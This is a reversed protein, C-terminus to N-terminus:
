DPVQLKKRLLGNSAVMRYTARNPNPKCWFEGGAREVIFGGAAIDWLNIGREIYADFRASAVYTLALSASGMSRIKRVRKVLRNFYPLTTTVTERTKAFGISLLTEQLDRRNSVRIKKGNLRASQGERATWMEQCFPDYVVGIVTHYGDHYNLTGAKKGRSQLAISVCAHPIGYSFNVTGDIPDVVWRYDGGTQGATGEEGLLEIDPFAAHLKREIIKQSRVDLDLKIDFQTVTHARKSGTLHKRMLAGVTKAAEVSVREAKKLDM